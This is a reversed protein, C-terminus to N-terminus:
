EDFSIVKKGKKVKLLNKYEIKISLSKESISVSRRLCRYIACGVISLAIITLCVLVRNAVIITTDSWSCDVFGHKFVEEPIITFVASILTGAIACGQKLLRTDM